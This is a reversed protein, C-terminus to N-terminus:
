ETISYTGSGRQGAIRRALLIALYSNPKSETRQPSERDKIDTPTPSPTQPDGITNDETPTPTPAASNIINDNSELFDLREMLTKNWVELSQLRESLGKTMTLLDDIVTAIALCRDCKWVEASQKFAQSDWVHSM